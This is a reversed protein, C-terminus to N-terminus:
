FGFSFYVAGVILLYSVFNNWKLTQGFLSYAIVSFAVLTISEQIIKLQM